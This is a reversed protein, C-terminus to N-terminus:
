INAFAHQITFMRSKRTTVTPSACLARATKRPQIRLVAQLLFVCHSCLPYFSCM